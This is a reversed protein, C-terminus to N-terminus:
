GHDKHTSHWTTGSHLIMTISMKRFMLLLQRTSLLLTSGSKRPGIHILGVIFPLMHELLRNGDGLVVSRQIGLFTGSDRQVWELRNEESCNYKEKPLLKELEVFEGKEIKHILAPEINCTLHFFDDDSVGKGIDLINM